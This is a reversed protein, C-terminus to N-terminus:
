FVIYVEQGVMLQVQVNCSFLDSLKIGKVIVTKSFFFHLRERGVCHQNHIFICNHTLAFIIYIIISYVVATKLSFSLHHVNPVSLSHFSNLHHRVTLRSGTVNLFVQFDIIESVLHREFKLSLERLEYM